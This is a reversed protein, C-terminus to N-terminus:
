PNNNQLRSSFLFNGLIVGLINRKNTGIHKIIYGTRYRYVFSWFVYNIKQKTLHRYIIIKHLIAFDRLM